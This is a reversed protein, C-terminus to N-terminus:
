MQLIYFSYPETASLVIGVVDSEAAYLDITHSLDMNKLMSERCILLVITSVSM